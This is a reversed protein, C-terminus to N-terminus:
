GQGDGSTGGAWGSSGMGAIARASAAWSPSAAHRARSGRVCRKGLMRRGRLPARSIPFPLASSPSRAMPPHNQPARRGHTVRCPQRLRTRCRTGVGHRFGPAPPATTGHSQGPWGNANCGDGSRRSKQGLNRTETDKQLSFCSPPKLTWQLGPAGLALAGPPDGLGLSAAPVAPCCVPSLSGAWLWGLVGSPKVWFFDNVSLRM